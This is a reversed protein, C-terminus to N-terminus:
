ETKLTRTRKSAARNREYVFRYLPPVLSMVDEVHMQQAKKIGENREIVKVEVYVVVVVTDM